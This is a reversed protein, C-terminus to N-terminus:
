KYDSTMWKTRVCFKGSFTVNRVRQYASKLPYSINTKRFFKAYASFSHDRILAAYIYTYPNLSKTGDDSHKTGDDTKM